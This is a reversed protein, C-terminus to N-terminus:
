ADGRGGSRAVASRMKGLSERISQEAGAGGQDAPRLLGLLGALAPAQSRGAEQPQAELLQRATAPDEVRHVLQLGAPSSGLVLVENGVAVLVLTRDKGIPVGELVKMRRGHTQQVQWRALFRSSAYTLGIVLLSALLFTLLGTGGLGTM